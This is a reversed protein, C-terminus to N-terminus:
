SKANRKTLHAVVAHQNLARIAADNFPPPVLVEDVHTAGRAGSNKAQPDFCALLRFQLFYGRFLYVKM